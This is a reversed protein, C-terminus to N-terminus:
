SCWSNPGTPCNDHLPREVTSAYHKLIAWAATSMAEPDNKNDRIARGYFNQVANCKSITLRGKGGLCKGDRM